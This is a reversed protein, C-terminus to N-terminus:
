KKGNSTEKMEEATFMRHGKGCWAASGQIAGISCGCKECFFQVIVPTRTNNENSM